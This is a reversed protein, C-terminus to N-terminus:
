SRDELGVDVRLREILDVFANADARGSFLNATLIRM